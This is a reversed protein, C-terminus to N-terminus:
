VNKGARNANLTFCINFLSQQENQINFWLSLINIGKRKSLEVRRRVVAGVDAKQFTRKEVTNNELAIHITSPKKELDLLKESSCKKWYIPAWTVTVLSKLITQHVFIRFIKSIGLNTHDHAKSSKSLDEFDDGSSVSFCLKKVDM